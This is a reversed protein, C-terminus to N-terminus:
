AAESPHTAMAEMLPDVDYLVVDVEGEECLPSMVVGDLGDVLQVLVLRGLVLAVVAAEVLPYPSWCIMQATVSDLPTEGVTPRAKTFMVVVSATM